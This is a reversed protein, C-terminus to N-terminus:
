SSTRRSPCPLGRRSSPPSSARTRAPSPTGRRGSPPEAEGPDARRGLGGVGGRNRVERKEDELAHERRDGGREDRARDDLPHAEAGVDEEDAEPTEDDVRRDRVPDPARASEQAPPARQVEGPARDHVHRGSRGREDGRTSPARCSWLRMASIGCLTGYTSRPEPRNHNPHNPKLAPDASAAFPMADSANTVVFAPAAAARRVQSRRSFWKPPWAVATPAAVPATTPSTPM